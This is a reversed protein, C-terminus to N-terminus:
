KLAEMLFKISAVRHRQISNHVYEYNIDSTINKFHDENYIRQRLEFMNILFELKNKRYTTIDVMFKKDFLISFVTGHFMNTVVFDSYKLYSLWEFPDISIINKFRKSKYGFSVINLSKEKAFAIMEDELNKNNGLYYYFIYKGDLNPKPVNHDILFTPDLVIDVPM